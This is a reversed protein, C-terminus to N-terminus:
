RGAPVSASSAIVPWSPANSRSSSRRRPMRQALLLDAAVQGPRSLVPHQRRRHGAVDGPQAAPYARFIHPARGAIGGAYILGLDIGKGELSLDPLKAHAIDGIDIVQIVVDAVLVLEQQVQVRHPM